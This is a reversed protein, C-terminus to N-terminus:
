NHKACNIIYEIPDTWSKLGHTGANITAQAFEQLAEMEETDSQCVLQETISTLSVTEIETTRKNAVTEAPIGALLIAKKIINNYDMPKINGAFTCFIGEVVVSLTM